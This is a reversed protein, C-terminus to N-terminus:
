RLRVRRHIGAESGQVYLASAPAKRLSPSLVRGVVGSDRVALDAQGARQIEWEPRSVRYELATARPRISYGWYRCTIFEELSGPEPLAPPQLDWVAFNGESNNGDSWAYEARAPEAERSHTVPARRFRERYVMRAALATLRYPVLQRIFVVGRRTVGEVERRVYFRLNVEPYSGCVPLHVGLVRTDLFRLGVLSVLCKGQWLDLYVGWPLRMPLAGPDAEYTLIVIDRWTATIVGAPPSPM